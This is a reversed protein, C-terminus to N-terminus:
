YILGLPLATESFTGDLNNSFLQEHFSDNAVFPDPWGDRDFDDVPSTRGRASIRTDILSASLPEAFVIKREGVFQEAGATEAMHM